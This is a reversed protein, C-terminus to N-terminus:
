FIFRDLQPAIQIQTVLKAGVKGLETFNVNRPYLRVGAMHYHWPYVEDELDHDKYIVLGDGVFYWDPTDKFAFVITDGTSAVRKGCRYEADFSNALYRALYDRFQEIGLVFEQRGKQTVKVHSYVFIRPSTTSM